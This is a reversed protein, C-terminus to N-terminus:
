EMRNFQLQCSLANSYKATCRCNAGKYHTHHEMNYPAKSITPKNNKTTTTTTTTTAFRM